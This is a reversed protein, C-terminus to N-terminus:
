WNIRQDVEYDPARQAAGDWDTAWDPESQVGDDRQADCDDDWLLPGRAPTIRPPEPDAWIHDLIQRIDASHNIFAILRMQGGCHSCLPPFVEYIRAILVAWLHRAPRKSPVPKAPEAQSPVVNGPVAGLAGGQTTAQGVQAAALQVGAGQALATVARRLPSNPVLM